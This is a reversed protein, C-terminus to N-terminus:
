ELCGFAILQLLGIFGIFCAAAVSAVGLAGRILRAGRSRCSLAVIGLLVGATAMALAAGLLMPGARHAASVYADRNDYDCQGDPGILAVALLLVGAAVWLGLAYLDTRRLSQTGPVM